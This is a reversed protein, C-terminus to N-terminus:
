KKKKLLVAMPSLAVLIAGIIVAWISWTYLFYFLGSLVIVASLLVIVRIKRPWSPLHSAVLAVGPIGDGWKAYSTTGKEVTPLEKAVFYMDTRKPGYLIWWPWKQGCKTCRPPIPLPPYWKIKGRCKTHYYPM